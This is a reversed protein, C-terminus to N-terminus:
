VIQNSPKICTDVVGATTETFCHQTGDALTKVTETAIQQVPPQAPQQNGGGLFGGLTTVVADASKQVQRTGIGGLVAGLFIFGLGAAGKVLTKSLDNDM